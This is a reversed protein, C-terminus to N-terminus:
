YFRRINCVSVYFLFPIAGHVCGPICLTKQKFSFFVAENSSSLREFFSMISFFVIYFGDWGFCVVIDGAARCGCCGQSLPGCIGNWGEASVRGNEYIGPNNFDAM